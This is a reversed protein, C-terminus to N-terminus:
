RAPLACVAQTSSDLTICKREADPVTTAPPYTLTPTYVAFSQATAPTTLTAALILAIGIRNM